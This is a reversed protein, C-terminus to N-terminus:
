RPQTNPAAQEAAPRRMVLLTIDDQQVPTWARAAALIRAYIVSVPANASARVLDMVREIGFEEGTASRAEILGDTYLVMMDGPALSLSQDRTEAEIDETIGIWVGDTSHLECRRTDARYVLVEEHAGALTIDGDARYRLMMFTAHDNADLRERINLRMVTNLQCVIEAPAAAPLANVLASVTSQMMLMIMGALLGHGTVDGIGIWCGDATNFVDYYDGGVQDAPLMGAALELGPVVPARPTLATQIRRAVALEVLLQEHALRERLATEEVVQAHLAGLKLAASLQSRVAECVFSDGEGSFAVLGLVETEFTLPLLLLCVRQDHTPFGDPFLCGAPYPDQNIALHQGSQLALLASMRAEPGPLLVALFGTDIGMNPIVQGLNRALGSHNLAMSLGQSVQRLGYARDMVNLARRGERRTASASLVILAKMCAEEFAGHDAGHYGANRCSRRLQVLARGIDDLSTERETLREAIQEVCRLFVGRHGALEDALSDIMESLFTEWFARSSGGAALVEILLSQRQDRLYESAKGPSNIELARSSHSVVYGCGCSERLVLHVDLTTVIPPTEGSLRRLIDDVAHEAMDEIPQAVTSLSRRAFRAVPADDFGMVLVDEPVRIGRDGLEDMAGIAMYDNAAVVGDIDRTRGLIENMAQRGTPMSFHGAGILSGDFPIGAAQIADRYGLLRSVAEDNHSPGGIYAIRRCEHQQILHHVAVQMAARNDLVISPIGPLCLGISSAKVPLLRKCLATVGATGVFNSLAGAAVIVGDVSDPTLWGYVCNLARENQDEHELERGIAVWLDVGRRAAVRGIATRLSMQYASDLFNVILAIRPRRRSGTMSFTDSDTPPSRFVVVWKDTRM